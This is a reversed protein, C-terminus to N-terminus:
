HKCSKLLVKRLSEVSVILEDIIGRTVGAEIQTKRSDSGSGRRMKVTTCSNTYAQIHVQGQAATTVLAALM